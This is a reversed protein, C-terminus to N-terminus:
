KVYRYSTHESSIFIKFLQAVLFLTAVFIVFRLLAKRREGAIVNPELGCFWDFRLCMRNFKGRQMPGLLHGLESSNKVLNSELLALFRRIGRMHPQKERRERFLMGRVVDLAADIVFVSILSALAAYLGMVFPGLLVVGILGFEIVNPYSMYSLRPYKDILVSDGVAWRYFHRYTRRGQNWWPHLCIAQPVALMPWKNLQLCYDIDEGGGTKIFALDFRLKANSGSHRVAMNATIAWPSTRRKTAIDWFYTIDSLHVATPFVRPEDPLITTGVFGDFSESHAQIAKCYADLLDSNPIVDDDLFVVWDAASESLGVNRSGSAGLNTPNRRVRLQGLRHPEREIERLWRIDAEPNDVVLIFMTSCCSPVPLDIIRRLFQQNVRYSPTIVDMVLREEIGSVTVSNARLWNRVQGIGQQLLTGKWDIHVRKYRPEQYKDDELLQMGGIGNTLKLHSLFISSGFRRYLEWVYPDGDQNVFVPPIVAGSFIEMHVRSVVPFTPFGSAGTDNLSICGFGPFPMRQFATHIQLPWPSQNETGKSSDIVEVDDGFLLFYQCGDFFARKALQRWIECIRPPSSPEFSLCTTSIALRSFLEGVDELITDGKDIGLYVHLACLQSNNKALHDAVSALRQLVSADGYRGGSFRKSTVPLLIAFGGVQTPNM